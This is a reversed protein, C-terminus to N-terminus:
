NVLEGGFHVGGWRSVVGSSLDLLVFLSNVVRVRIVCVVVVVVLQPLVCVCVGCRVVCM